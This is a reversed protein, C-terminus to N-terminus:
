ILQAVGYVATVLMTKMELDDAEEDLRDARVIDQALEAFEEASIAGSDRDALMQLVISAREAAWAPGQEAIIQLQQQNEDM